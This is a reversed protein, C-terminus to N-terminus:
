EDFFFKVNNLNMEFLMGIFDMIKDYVKDKEVNCKDKFKKKDFLKFFEDIISIISEILSEGVM